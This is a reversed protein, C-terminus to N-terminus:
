CTKNYDVGDGAGIVFEAPMFGPELYKRYVKQLEYLNSNSSSNFSVFLVQKENVGSGTTAIRCGKVRLCTMGLNELLATYLKKDTLFNLELQGDASFRCNEVVMVPQEDHNSYFLSGFIGSALPKFGSAALVYKGPELIRGAPLVAPMNASATIEACTIMKNIGNAYFGTFCRSANGNCSNWQEMEEALVLSGNIVVVHLGSIIKQERVVMEKICKAWQEKHILLTRGTDPGTLLDTYRESSQITNIKIGNLLALLMLDTVLDESLQEDLFTIESGANLGFQFKLSEFYAITDGCSQQYRQNNEGATIKLLDNTSFTVPTVAPVEKSAVTNNFDIVPITGSSYKASHSKGVIAADVAVAADAQMLIYAGGTKLVGLVASLIAAKDELVIGTVTGKGIGAAQMAAAIQTAANNLEFFTLECDDFVAAVAQENGSDLNNLLINLTDINSETINAESPSIQRQHLGVNSIKLSTDASVAVLMAEFGSIWEEMLRDDFLANNYQFTLKYQQNVKAINLFLHNKNVDTNKQYLKGKENEAEASQTSVPADMNFTVNIEPVNCNGERGLYQYPYRRHSYAKLWNNKINSLFESFGPEGEIDTYFPLMQICSGVMCPAEMNLQGASPIGIVQRKNNFLRSVFLNYLALFVMFVTCGEKRAMKELMIATDEDLKLVFSNGKSISNSGKLALAPLGAPPLVRSLQEAWYDKAVTNGADSYQGDIWKLYSSFAVSDPLDSATGNCASRYLTSIEEMLVNVSWGDAILQHVVMAM